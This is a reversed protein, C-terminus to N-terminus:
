CQWKQPGASCIKPALSNREPPPTPCELKTPVYRLSDPKLVFATGNKNFYNLYFQMRSDLNQYNMCIMQCGLQLHLMAPSNTDIESWDPMTLTMHNKNWDQLDGISPTYQISHNREQHFYASGDGLNVLEYFPNEKDKYNSNEQYAMIIVKNKLNLLPENTLDKTDYNGDSTVGPTLGARGEFGWTADMLKPAFNSKIAEALAPYVDQRNSKIRFHLFLPDNPNPSTGGSFALNKVTSLVKNINLSNYTGKLSMSNDPGAAVVATGGVSYIAFDLVRAGHFIIEKLPNISVYSDQFDGACCSNYSSAIYYSFLKDQFRGDVNNIDSIKPDFTDDSYLEEMRAWSGDKKGIQTRYYILVGIIALFVGFWIYRTVAVSAFEAAKSIHDMIKTSM